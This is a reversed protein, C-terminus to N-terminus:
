CSNTLFIMIVIMLFSFAAFAMSANFVDGEFTELVWDYLPKLPNTNQSPTHDFSPLDRGSPLPPPYDHLLPDSSTTPLPDGPLSVDPGASLPSTGAPDQFGIPTAPVAIAPLSSPENM